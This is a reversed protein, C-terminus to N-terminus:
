SEVIRINTGVPVLEFLEEVDANLMRICGLSEAKGISEPAITGHVGYSKLDFGMWRTGLPNDPNGFPIVKGDHYWTPNKLRSAIKFDGVPTSNEKGLGVAYSKVVAGGAMLDLTFHTKDVVINWHEKMIKLKMGPWIADNKISNASAILGVTVNYQKSIKTLTDGAQVTYIDANTENLTKFYSSLGPANTAAAASPAAAEPVSSSPFKMRSSIVFGAAALVAAPILVAM